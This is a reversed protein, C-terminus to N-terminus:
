DPEVDDSPPAGNSSTRDTAIQSRLAAAERELKRQEARIRNLSVTTHVKTSAMDGIALLVIWVSLLLLLIVYAAFLALKALEGAEVVAGSLVFDGLPLIVGIITLLGSAQIRRRFRRRFFRLDAEDFEPDVQQKQWARWHSRMMLLGGVILVGGFAASVWLSKVM